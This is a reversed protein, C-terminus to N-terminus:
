KWNEALLKFMREVDEPVVISFLSCAMVAGAVVNSPKDLSSVQSVENTVVGGALNCLAHYPDWHREKSSIPQIYTLDSTILTPVTLFGDNGKDFLYIFVSKVHAAEKQKNHTWRRYLYEAMFFGKKLDNSPRAATDDDAFRHWSEKDMLDDVDRILRSCDRHLNALAALASKMKRGNEDVMSRDM